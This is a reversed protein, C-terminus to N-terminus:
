FMLYGFLLDEFLGILVLIIFGGVDFLYVLSILLDVRGFRRLYIYELISIREIGRSCIVVVNDCRRISSWEERIFGLLVVTVVVVVMGMVFIGYKMVELYLRDEFFYVVSVVVLIGIDLFM